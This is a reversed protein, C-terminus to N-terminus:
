WSAHWRWSELRAVACGWGALSSTCGSRCSAIQNTASGPGRWSSSHIDRSNTALKASGETEARKGAQMLVRALGVFSAVHRRTEFTRHFVEAVLVTATTEGCWPDVFSSGKRSTSINWEREYAGVKPRSRSGQDSRL